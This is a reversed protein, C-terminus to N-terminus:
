SIESHAKWVTSLEWLFAYVADFLVQQSIIGYGHKEVLQKMKFIDMLSNSGTYECFEQVFNSNPLIDASSYGKARFLNRANTMAMYLMYESFVHDGLHYTCTYIRGEDFNFKLIDVSQKKLCDFGEYIGYKATNLDLSLPKHRICLDSLLNKNRYCTYKSWSLKTFDSHKKYSEGDDVTIHLFLVEAVLQDVSPKYPGYAVEFFTILEPFETQLYAKLSELFAHICSWISKDSIDHCYIWIDCDGFSTEKWGYHGSFSGLFAIDIIHSYNSLSNNIFNNISRNIDKVKM